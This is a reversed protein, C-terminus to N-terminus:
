SSESLLQAALRENGRKGKAPDGGLYAMGLAYASPDPDGTARAVKIATRARDAEPSDATLAAPRSTHKRRQQAIEDTRRIREAKTAAIEAHITAADRKPERQEHRASVQKVAILGIMLGVAAGVPAVAATGRDTLSAIAPLYGIQAALSVAFGVGAVAYALVRTRGHWHRVISVFLLIEGIIVPADIMAPWAWAQWMPVRHRTAWDFLQRYSQAFCALTMATVLVFMLRLLRRVTRDFPAETTNPADV